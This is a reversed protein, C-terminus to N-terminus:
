RRSYAGLWGLDVTQFRSEDRLTGSYQRLTFRPLTVSHVRAGEGVTSSGQRWDVGTEM